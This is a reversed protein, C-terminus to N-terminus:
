ITLDNDQQLKLGVGFIHAIVWVLLAALLVGSYNQYDNTIQINEFHMNTVIYYYVLRAYVILVLWFGLLLYSLTKIHKINKITFVIGNKVNKVFLRFVWLFYATLSVILFLIFGAKRTIFNPTDFFHIKSIAEVLEVKINQSNLHLLGTEIFSVKVPLLVHLQMSDDFYNTYLLINFVIVAVIVLSFLGLIINILWYLIKISLADTKM